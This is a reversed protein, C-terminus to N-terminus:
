VSGGLCRVMKRNKRPSAGERSGIVPLLKTVRYRWWWKPACGICGRYTLRRALGTRERRGSPWPCARHTWLKFAGPLPALEQAHFGTGAPGAYHPRGDKTYYGLLLAGFHSRSGAPETWGAVVFEERNLCKSKLWLSRAGPAQACGIRK